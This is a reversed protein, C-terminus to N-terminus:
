RKLYTFRYRTKLIEPNRIINLALHYYKSLGKKTALEFSKKNFFIHKKYEKKLDKDQSWLYVSNWLLFQRENYKESYRTIKTIRNDDHVGRMAVAEDIEGSKLNCFYSSKIIFDSDQHVRLNENFKLNNKRISETRITLGNLHFFTGFNKHLGLLGYFVEKGEAHHKVTTLTNNKFKERFEEKGKETLFDTGIANFVGDIKEDKFLEKEENFRNPLYYDDADLFAIFDQSSKELGLNRTAGAGHNGKDPHQFLKVKEFEKELNKCVELSNDTSKDEILLIEKVEDFQLASKVAKELFASANYVPIIVSVNM